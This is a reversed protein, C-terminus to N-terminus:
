DIGDFIADVPITAGDTFPVPITQGATYDTVSPGLREVLVSRFEPYITWFEACGSTLCLSRKRYMERDKNSPSDIDIVLDPSGEIVGRQPVREWRTFGVDARMRSRSGASFPQEAFCLGREKLLPKLLDVLNYEIRHHSFDPTSVFVIEGEHLELHGDEPDALREFEEVTILTAAPM